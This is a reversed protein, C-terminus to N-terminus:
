LARKRDGYAQTIVVGQQLGAGAAIREAGLELVWVGTENRLGTAPQARPGSVSKVRVGALELDQSLFVSLVPLSRNSIRM